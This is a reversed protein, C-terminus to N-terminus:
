GDERDIPEEALPWDPHAAVDLHLRERQPAMTQAQHPRNTSVRGYLAIELPRRRSTNQHLVRPLMM